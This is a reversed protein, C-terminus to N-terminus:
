SQPKPPAGKYVPVPETTSETDLLPYVEHGVTEDGAMERLGEGSLHAVVVTINDPGGRENAM